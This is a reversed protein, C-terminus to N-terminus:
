QENALEELALKGQRVLHDTEAQLADAHVMKAEAERRLREINRQREEITLYLRRVYFDEVEGTEVDVRPAPYRDQLQFDFLNGQEANRESEHNRTRCIARALQRLELIAAVRVLAPSAKAPDIDDFVQTALDAPSIAIVRAEDLVNYRSRLLANLQEATQEVLM